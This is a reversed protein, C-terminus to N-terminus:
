GKPVAPGEPPRQSEGENRIIFVRHNRGDWHGWPDQKKLSEGMSEASEVSEVTVVSLVGTVM